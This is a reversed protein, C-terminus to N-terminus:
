KTSTPAANTSALLRKFNRLWALIREVVWRYRGLSSGHETQRRAIV